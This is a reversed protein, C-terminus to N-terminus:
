ALLKEIEEVANGVADNQLFQARYRAAHSRYQPDTLIQKVARQIVAPAVTRKAIGVGVKFYNVRAAVEAKDESNGIVLLPLGNTLATTVGQFGGNSIFLDCKPLLWSHPIFPEVITNPPTALQNHADSQKGTTVVLTVDANALANITPRLLDAADTAVTGQSVHIVPRQGDLRSAWAPPVYDASDTQGLFGIFKIHDALNQRPYEFNAPQTTLHLYPSIVSDTYLTPEPELGVTARLRNRRVREDRMLTTVFLQHLLRNRGHNFPGSLPQWGMGFPPVDPSSATLPSSGLSVWRPGGGVEHLWKAGLFGASTLTLDASFHDLVRAVDEMQTIAHATYREFLQQNIEALWRKKPRVFAEAVSLQSFDRSTHLPLFRCHTREVRPQFRRGSLWVVDHGSAVLRAAIPSM